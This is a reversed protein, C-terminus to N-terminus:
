VLASTILETIPEWRSYEYGDVNPGYHHGPNVMLRNRFPTYKEYIKWSNQLMQSLNEHLKLNDGFTCKIWEKTIQSSELEPDWTLRGYGYLNAQALTHGTWNINDGVNSVGAIGFNRSNFPSGSVIKSVTTGEGFLYTDFDFVEKWQPVM